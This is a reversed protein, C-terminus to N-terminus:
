EHRQKVLEYTNQSPDQLDVHENDLDELEMRDLPTHPTHDIPPTMPFDESPAELTRETLLRAFLAPQTPNPDM